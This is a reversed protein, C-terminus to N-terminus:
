RAGQDTASGSKEADPQGGVIVTMMAEPRVRARFARLIDERTVAAVKDSYTDLWDLPLQYFGIVALYELIKRNSDIRLPFGGILNNKAQTLEADTPGDALYSALEERATRVAEQTADRRTQLGIQFPGLERMPMFYSYVSYALGKKQRISNTLRSDFGGGGLVYNGVHLPFYEPDERQLGPLGMFLHSQTAHHPIVNEQGQANIRVPPVPPPAEGRPLDAALL